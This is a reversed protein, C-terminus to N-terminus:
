LLKVISLKMQMFWFQETGTEEMIKVVNDM